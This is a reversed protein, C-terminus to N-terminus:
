DERFQFVLHVRNDARLLERGYQTHVWSVDGVVQRSGAGELLNGVLQACYGQRKELEWNRASFTDSSIAGSASASHAKYDASHTNGVQRDYAIL